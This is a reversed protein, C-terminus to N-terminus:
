HELMLTRKLNKFIDTFRSPNSGEVEHSGPFRGNEM